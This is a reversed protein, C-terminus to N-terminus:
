NFNYGFYGLIANVLGVGSLGVIFLLLLFYFFIKIKSQKKYRMFSIKMMLPVIYADYNFFTLGFVDLIDTIFPLFASVICVCLFPMLSFTKFFRDVKVHFFDGLYNRVSPNFIPLSIIIFIFFIIILVRIVIEINSDPDIPKRLIFLSTIYKDGLCIYGTIGVLTCLIAEFFHSYQNIKNLRKKSPYLLEQKIDLAYIQLNFSFMISFYCTIWNISPTKYFWEVDLENQENYHKYFFPLQILITLLLIILFFLFGLTIKRMSEMTKNLLNPISILYIITFFISRIIIMKPSYEKFKLKEINELDSEKLIIKFNFLINELFNYAAVTYLLMTSIYDLLLSIRSIKYMTFGLTNRVISIYSKKNTKQAIDFIIHFTFFNLFAALLIFIAGTLAGLKSVYFPLSFIGIGLTMRIWTLITGRLSGERFKRFIRKFLNLGRIKELYNIKSDSINLFSNKNSLVRVTETDSDEVNENIFDFEPDSNFTLDLINEQIKIPSRLNENLDESNM